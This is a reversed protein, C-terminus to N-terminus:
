PDREKVIEAKQFTKIPWVGNPRVKWECLCMIQGTEKERKQGVVRYLVDGKDWDGMNEVIKQRYKVKKEDEKKRLAEMKARM